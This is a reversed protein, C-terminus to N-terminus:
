ELEENTQTVFARMESEDDDDDDDGGGGGEMMRVVMLGKRREVANEIGYTFTEKVKLKGTNLWHIIQATYSEYLQEYDMVLYCKRLSDLKMTNFLIHNKPNAEMTFIMKGVLSSLKRAPASKWSLASSVKSTLQQISDEELYVISRLTDLPSRPVGSETLDGSCVQGYESDLWIPPPDSCMGLSPPGSPRQFAGGTAESILTKLQPAFLSTGQKMVIDGIEGAVTDFYVDVGDPCSERLKEALDEMKYNLAIDFGLESVLMDCKQDSGCIGVVRCYGLLRAMQGALSGCAGAASSVVITQKAGPIVHGIVKLGILATLGIVGAAGIFHTIHGNVLTPDLKQLSKGDLICKTQWPWYDSKVLDGPTIHSTRSVEVVGIGGGELVQNIKFPVMYDAGPDEKMQCRMYPDLALYLTRVLVQGETLEESVSLEELRFNEAVPYEENSIQLVASM